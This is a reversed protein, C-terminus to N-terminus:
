EDITYGIAKYGGKRRELMRSLMPVEIDAYDYITVEKKLDHDRHLRGAYQSLTGKWSIPMTLFLTDLRSDDFGEGLYRGTALIAKEIGDPLSELDDICAKRQKKGMGGKMVILNEIKPELLARLKELHQKRETLIVPFRGNSISLLVDAVILRNRAENEMLASYIEHIASYGADAIAPAM